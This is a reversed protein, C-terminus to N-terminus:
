KKNKMYTEFNTTRYYEYKYEDGEFDLCIRIYLYNDNIDNVITAGYRPEIDMIKYLKDEWLDYVFIGPKERKKIYDNYEPFIIKLEEDKYFTDGGSFYVYRKDLSIDHSPIRRSSGFDSIFGTILGYRLMNSVYEEKTKLNIRHFIYYCSGPELCGSIEMDPEEPVTELLFMYEGLINILHTSGHLEGNKRIISGKGLGTIDEKKNTMLNLKLLVILNPYLIINKDKTPYYVIYKKGKSYWVTSWSFSTANGYSEIIIKKYNDNYLYLEGKEKDNFVQIKNEYKYLKWTDDGDTKEIIYGMRDEEKSVGCPFLYEEYEKSLTIKKWKIEKSLDIYEYDVNKLQWEDPFSLNEKILYDFDKDYEFSIFALIIIFLLIILKIEKRKMNDVEKNIELLLFKYIGM